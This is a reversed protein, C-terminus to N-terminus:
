LIGKKSIEALGRARDVIYAVKSKPIHSYNKEVYLKQVNLKSSTFTKDKSLEDAIKDAEKELKEREEETMSRKCMGCRLPEGENITQLTFEDLEKGCIECYKKNEDRYLLLKANIQSVLEMLKKFWDAEINKTITKGQYIWSVSVSFVKGRANNVLENFQEILPSFDNNNEYEELSELFEFSEEGTEEGLDVENLILFSGEYNSVFDVFSKWDKEEEIEVDSGKSKELNLFGELVKIGKQKAYEEIESKLNNLDDM